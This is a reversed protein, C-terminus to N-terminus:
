GRGSISNYLDEIMQSSVNLIQSSAQFGRQLVIIDGFERALDVNALEVNSPSLAGFGGEGPKGIQIDVGDPISFLVGDDSELRQPDAVAALAVQQGTATQGNSFSLTVVGKNDFSYGTLQGSTYGDTASAALTSDAASLQTTGSFDLTVTTAKGGTATIPLDFSTSGPAPAGSAQYVLTESLVEASSSNKVSMKWQQTTADKTFDITFTQQVGDSDFVSITTQHATDGTSLTGAFTVKTTAVAPNLQNLNIKLTELGDSGYAQVMESTGPEVLRGQADLQFQGARTLSRVGDKSVIFFGQGDVALNSATGTDRLEGSSFRRGGGTVETGAGIAGAGTGDRFDQTGPPSSSLSSFFLDSGRFGVTNLNAVNNSIADLARSFALLSTQSIFVSSLATM